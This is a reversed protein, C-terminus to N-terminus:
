ELSFHNSVVIRTTIAMFKYFLLLFLDQLLLFVFFSDVPHVGSGLQSEDSLDYSHTGLNLWAHIGCQWPGM